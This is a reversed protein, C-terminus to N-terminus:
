RGIGVGTLVEHVCHVLFDLRFFRVGCRRMAKENSPWVRVPFDVHFFKSEKKKKKKQRGSIGSSADRSSLFTQRSCTPIGPCPNPFLSPLPPHQIFITDRQSPKDLDEPPTRKSQPWQITHQICTSSPQTIATTHFFSFEM